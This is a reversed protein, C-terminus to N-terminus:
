LTGIYDELIIVAAEADIDTKKYIDGKLREEAARSSLTEDQYYVPLGLAAINSEVFKRVYQSQKTEEGSLNRPLGVVVADISFEDIQKKVQPIFNSDNKLTDLRQPIRAILNVRAVGIKSEGVDLGLLNSIAM